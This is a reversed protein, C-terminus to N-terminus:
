GDRVHGSELRRYGSVEVTALKRLGESPSIGLEDHLLHAYARYEDIAGAANGAMLHARIVISHASERLPEISAAARAAALASDSLGRRLVAIALAELARVREHQLREREFMVWDEYWGPTLEDGDLVSLAATFDVDDPAGVVEAACRRFDRVDVAVDAALDVTTQDADLLQASARRVQLLAARLSSHARNETSEPWMVGAVYSRMRRGNLAVYTVLRQERGGMRVSRGDVRLDWCGFLRLSRQQGRSGLGDGM